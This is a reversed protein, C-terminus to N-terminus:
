LNSCLKKLSSDLEEYGTADEKMERMMFDLSNDLSNKIGVVNKGHVIQKLVDDLTEAVKGIRKKGMMPALGKIKHFHGELNDCYNSIDSDSNCQKILSEIHSLEENIEQAAVRLFEDSM